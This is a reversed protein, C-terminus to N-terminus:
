IKEPQDLYPRCLILEIMPVEERNGNDPIGDLTKPAAGSYKKATYNSQISLSLDISLPVLMSCIVAAAENTNCVAVSAGLPVKTANGPLADGQEEMRLHTEKIL